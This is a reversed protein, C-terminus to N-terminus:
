RAVPGIFTASNRREAQEFANAADTVAQATVNLANALTSLNAHGQEAHALYRAAFESGIAGSGWCGDEAALSSQLRQHVANVADATSSFQPAASRLEALRLDITGGSM